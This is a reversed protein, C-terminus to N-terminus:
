ATEALDFEVTPSAGLIERADLVELGVLRGDRDFDAHVGPRITETSAAKTGIPAFWVYLLDHSPDYQVKM